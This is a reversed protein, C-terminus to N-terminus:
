AADDMQQFLDFWVRWARAIARCHEPDVALAKNQNVADWLSVYRTWAEDVTLRTPLVTVNSM